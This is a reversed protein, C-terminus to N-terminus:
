QWYDYAEGEDIVIGQFYVGDRDRLKLVQLSLINQLADLLLGSFRTLSVAERNSEKCWTLYSPYLKIDWGVFYPVREGDTRGDVKKGVYVKSREKPAITSMVWGIVPNQERSAERTAALISIPPTMFISTVQDRGLELAWNIIAPIEAHLRIEGGAAVFGSREDAPIVRDLNLVLMRRFLGSTYDTAHLTENGAMLVMGGFIFSVSQQVNKRENRLPDQGTLAKLVNVSGGYKDTDTIVVLRKGYLKATEFRNQELNRLDTTESNDRGMIQELLRIFTSKGTGGPGKLFLFRQLDSRGTVAAAIFARLMKIKGEDQGTASNLWTMFAPCQSDKRYDHPISWTAATEPTIPEIRGSKLDMLGNRFPIKDGSVAPLPLLNGRKLITTVSQMYAARFGAGECGIYLDNTIAEDAYSTHCTQWHTGQFSHWVGAEANYALRGSQADALLRATESDALLRSKGDDDEYVFAGLSIKQHQTHPSKTTEFDEPVRTVTPKHLAHLSPAVNAKVRARPIERNLTEQFQTM